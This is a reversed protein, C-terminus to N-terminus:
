FMGSYIFLYYGITLAILGCIINTTMKNGIGREEFVGFITDGISGIFGIVSIILVTWWDYYYLYKAIIAIVLAGIFSMWTGFLTMGGSTGRKIKRFTFIERPEGGLVGLESAFKDAEMAALTTVYLIPSIALGIVPVLGNSVVNEWSREHEYIGFDKKEQYGQKTVIVAIVLFILIMMFGNMGGLLFVIIGLLIALTIGPVDLLLTNRAKKSIKKSIKREEEPIKKRMSRKKGRGRGKM